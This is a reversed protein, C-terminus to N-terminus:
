RLVTGLQSGAREFVDLAHEPEEAVQVTRLVILGAGTAVEVGRDSIRVVEGAPADVPEHSFGAEWVTLKEPGLYCFAGVYPHTMARVLDYTRRANQKWDIRPRADPVDPLFTARSEDQPTTELRGRKLMPLVEAIMERGATITKSYLTCATDRLTIHFRRQSVIPGGYAKEDMLYFTLGGDTEGALIHAPIADPGRNRPLLSPHSAITGLRPISLLEPLPLAPLGMALVADCKLSHLHELDDAAGFSAVEHHEVGRARTLDGLDRWDPIGAGHERAISYVACVNADEKLIEDLMHRAFETTGVFVIRVPM